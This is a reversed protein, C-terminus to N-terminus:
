ASASPDIGPIGAQALSASIVLRQPATNVDRRDFSRGHIVRIGASNFYDGSVIRNDAEGIQRSAEAVGALPGTLPEPSGWTHYFGTVPLKSIGRRSARRPTRGGGACTRSASRVLPRTM